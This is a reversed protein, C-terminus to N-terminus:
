DQVISESQPPLVGNQSLAMPVQRAQELLASHLAAALGGSQEVMPAVAPDQTSHVELAWHPPFVGMQLTPVPWQRAQMPLSQALPKGPLGRHPALPAQTCHLTAVSQGPEVGIQAAPAQRVQWLPVSHM